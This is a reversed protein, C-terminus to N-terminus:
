NAQYGLLVCMRDFYELNAMGGRPFSSNYATWLDERTISISQVALPELEWDVRTFDTRAPTHDTLLFFSPDTARKARRGSRWRVLIDELKAM